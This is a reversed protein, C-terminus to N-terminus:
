ENQNGEERRPKKSVIIRIVILLLATLVIGAVWLPLAPNSAAEQREEAMQGDYPVRHGRVLLRQTNVGYPTCTLLTVLDQGAIIDLDELADPEVVKIQDVEYALVRGIVNLYFVDGAALQDLDTFLKATPLGRHGALVAHSSEGGVPLSTGQIHGIGQELVAASTGHYIILRQKIRPIEIYGMIGDGAPNLLTDYPHTLEYEEDDFVDYVTNYTHHANYDLAELFLRKREEESYNAVDQQYDRILRAHLYENWANSITPYLLVALGALFLLAVFVRLIRRPM